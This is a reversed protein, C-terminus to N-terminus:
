FNFHPFTVTRSKQRPKSYLEPRVSLKRKWAKVNGTLTQKCISKALPKHRVHVTGQTNKYEGHKTDWMGQARHANHKLIEKKKNVKIIKYRLYEIHWYRRKYNQTEMGWVEIKGNIKYKDNKKIFKSLNSCIFNSSVFLM